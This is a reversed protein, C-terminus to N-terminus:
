FVLRVELACIATSQATGSLLLWLPPFPSTGAKCPTPLAAFDQMHLANDGHEGDQKKEPSTGEVDPAM